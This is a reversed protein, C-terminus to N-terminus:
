RVTGGRQKVAQKMAELTVPKRGPVHLIGKLATVPRTAPRLLITQQDQVIFDLHDGAHLGLLDRISKPIVTQGKSTMTSTPM